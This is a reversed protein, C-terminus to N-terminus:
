SADDRNEGLCDRVLDAVHQVAVDSDRRRHWAMHLPFGEISIPPEFVALRSEHDPPLCHRPLLAIMNSSELTPPVMLFSPMVLGVRRSRGITALAEDLAGHMDGRGSVLIHPYALWADLDFADSAPHKKRMVVVYTEHLLEIRHFQSGLPPLVSIALDVDGRTLRETVDAAGHWPMIVLDIGPATRGLTGFLTRTVVVAPHDAMVIRVSQKIDALAVEPPDLITIISALAQKLPERLAQAKPTLRMGGRGRELLPDSFLHRCRDLASSTAPQSLGLRAAARSVHAEDLLVDLIVLLNLDIGRLNM